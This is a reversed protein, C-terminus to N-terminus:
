LDIDKWLYEFGGALIGVVRFPRGDLRIDRGVLSADGGYRRRWFSYSLMVNADNGSEADQEAITRGAFAGAGVLAYFSPTARLVNLREAGDKGGAADLTVSGRRYLVVDDFSRVERRRDFYDPVSTAGVGPGAAGFGFKPYLNSVLVIRDAGAIPLPKLLVSRVISFIVTNGGLCVVLTALVTLTFSRERTWSRMAFRADRLVDSARGAWPRGKRHAPPTRWEQRHARPASILADAMGSLWARAYGPAGHRRRAADLCDLFLTELERGHARRVRPPWLLLLLRYLLRTASM